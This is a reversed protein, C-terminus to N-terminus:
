SKIPFIEFEVIATVGGKPTDVFATVFTDTKPSINQYTKPELVLATSGENVVPYFAFKTKAGNYTQFYPSLSICCQASPKGIMILNTVNAEKNFPTTYVTSFMRNHEFEIYGKVTTLDNPIGNTIIGDEYIYVDGNLNQLAFASNVRILETTLAVKNRGNLSIIQTVEEWNEDLGEIFIQIGVDLINDSSIINIRDTFPDTFTFDINNPGIWIFNDTFIPLNFRSGIVTFFKAGIVDGRAVRTSRKFGETTSPM